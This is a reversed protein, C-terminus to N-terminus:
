RLNLSINKIYNIAKSLDLDRRPEEAKFRLSKFRTDMLTTALLLANDFYVKARSNLDIRM